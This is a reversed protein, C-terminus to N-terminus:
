PVEIVKNSIQGEDLIDLLALADSYSRKVVLEDLQEVWPKMDLRWLSSGETATIHKDLPTTMVFLPSKSGPSPTMLRIQANNTAPTQNTAVLSIESAPM